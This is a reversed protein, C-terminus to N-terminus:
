GQGFVKTMVRGDCIRIPRDVLDRYHLEPNIGLSSFITAMVDWPGWAEEIPYAGRPDSAGIVAGRQVGAGAMAISYVWSWHKRGPTAGAFRPELAVLPARGFEGMCVVLTTDLLGRQDLDEILASFGQDFRPLLHQQLSSFIDNHTDWGYLDTNEPQLDQGRNNHSWIVTILPVGAEVLRRALLCAQGSRNRGYRDRLSEPEDSLDFAMRAEPRSLMEFAQGYLAQKELRATDSELLRMQAEVSSLLSQRAELRVPPLDTHPLLAPVATLERSVDGLTLPDYGRGLLGGFQGPAVILPVEAPGNLHIATQSFATAPRVRQLVAGMCPQDESSPLPNGSRRRHYRGTMSLYFASGHDLDEHAMSRVVTLRDALRAIQPMHECFRVGPIATQISGFVGRIEEPAEPKPDWTDLQSQGGSAFVVIVSKAKGFGPVSALSATDEARSRAPILGPLAWNLGALGGLRLWERRTRGPASRFASNGTTEFRLMQLGWDKGRGADM